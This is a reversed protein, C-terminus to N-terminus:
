FQKFYRKTDKNPERKIWYSDANADFQRKVPDYGFRRMMVGIPTMVIYFTFGFIVQTVVWAFPFIACMWTLYVARMFKPFVFGICAIASSTGWIIMAVESRGHRFMQLSGVIGFFVIFLAGFQNLFKRDPQWQIEIM